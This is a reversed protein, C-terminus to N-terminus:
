GGLIVIEKKLLGKLVELFKLYSMSMEEMITSIPTGDLIYKLLKIEDKSLEIGNTDNKTNPLMKTKKTIKKLIDINEERLNIGTAIIDFLDKKITRPPLVINTIFSFTGNIELFVDLIAEEGISFPGNAHVIEGNSFYIGYMGMVGDVELKGSKKSTSISQIVEELKFDSLNGQLAM